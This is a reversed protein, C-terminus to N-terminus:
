GLQDAASLGGSRTDGAPRASRCHLRARVATTGPYRNDTPQARPGARDTAQPAPSQTCNIARPQM